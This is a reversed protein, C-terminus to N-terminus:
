SALTPVGLQNFLTNPLARNLAMSSNHWWRRSNGAVKRAADAPMGRAVLERYIVWGRKWHKLHVARLRHRVWGDIDALAGPAETLRFYAKWGSLYTGLPKCMQALSRGASRRTQAFNLLIGARTLPNVLGSCPLAQRGPVSSRLITNAARLFVRAVDKGAAQSQRISVFCLINRRTRWKGKTSRTVGLSRNGRRRDAERHWHIVTKPRVIALASLVSPALGYLGTFVLRDISGFTPRKPSKRRLINLQHRLTLIELGAFSAIPVIRDTRVLDTQLARDDLLLKM